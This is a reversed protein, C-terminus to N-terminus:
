ISSPDSLFSLLRVTSLPAAAAAAIGIAAAHTPLGLVPAAVVAGTAAAVVAPEPVAAGFFSLPL